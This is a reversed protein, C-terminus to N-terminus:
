SIAVRHQLIVIRRIWGEKICLSMDDVRRPRDIVAIVHRKYKSIKGGILLNVLVPVGGRFGQVVRVPGCGPILGAVFQPQIVGTVAQAVGGPQIVPVSVVVDVQCAINTEEIDKKAKWGARNSRNRYVLGNGM